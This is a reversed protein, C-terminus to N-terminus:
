LRQFCNNDNIQRYQLLETSNKIKVTHIYLSNTKPCHVCVDSLRKAAAPFVFLCLMRYWNTLRTEYIRQILQYFRFRPLHSSHINLNLDVRYNILLGLQVFVRISYAYVQAVMTLRSLQDVRTTLIRGDHSIWSNQLPWISLNM